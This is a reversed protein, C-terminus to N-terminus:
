SLYWFSLRTCETNLDTLSLYFILLLNLLGFPGKPVDLQSYFRIEELQFPLSCQAKERRRGRWTPRHWNKRGPSACPSLLQWLSSWFPGSCQLLSSISTELFDLLNNNSKEVSTLRNHWDVFPSSWLGKYFPPNQCSLSFGFLGDSQSFEAM